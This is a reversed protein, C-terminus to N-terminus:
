IHILSLHLTTYHLTPTHEMRKIIVGVLQAMTTRATAATRLAIWPAETLVDKYLEGTLTNKFDGNFLLM